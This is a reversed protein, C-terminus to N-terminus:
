KPQPTGSNIPTTTPTSTPFPFTTPLGPPLASPIVTPIATPVWSPTSSPWIPPPVGPYGGSSSSPKPPATTGGSGTSPSTATDPPVPVPFDGTNAPILPPAGSTESPAPAATRATPEATKMVQCLEEDGRAGASRYRLVMFAGGGLGALALGVVIVMTTSVGGGPDSPAQPRTVITARQPEPAPEIATPKAARPATVAIDSEDVSPLTRGIPTGALPVLPEPLAAGDTGPETKAAAKQQEAAAGALIVKGDPRHPTPAADSTEPKDLERLTPLEDTVDPRKPADDSM